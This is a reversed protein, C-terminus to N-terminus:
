AAAPTFTVTGDEAKAATGVTRNGGYTVDTPMGLNGGGAGGLSAPKVMCADYREAFHAVPENESNLYYHAIMMDQNTLAQPDQKVFALNVIRQQAADGGALDWADFSQTLTPKKMSTYINGLIDQITEEKWDFEVDSDTSRRGMPSWVPAEATGTNLYAIMMERAITQSGTVNFVYNTDVM